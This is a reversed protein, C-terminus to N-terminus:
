FAATLAIVHAQYTDYDGVFDGFANGTQIPSRGFDILTYHLGLRVKENWDHIFGASFRWQRDSAMDPLNHRRDRVPSTDHAVGFQLLWAPAARWEVGLGVHWTDHWARAIELTAGAPGSIPTFDNESWDEWGVDAMLAVTDNLQHYVSARVMQPIPIEVSVDGDELGLAVFLPPLDNFDIDGDLEFELKSRYTVGFRTSESHQYLLGVNVNWDFDDIGDMEVEGEPGPTLRGAVGLLSDVAERQRQNGLNPFRDLVTQLQELRTTAADLRDQDVFNGLRPLALDFDMRGYAVTVGGGISWKDNIRYSVVPTAGLIALDLDTVWTRGAWDDDPSLAGGALGVFSGGVAWKDNLPEVYFGGAGPAFGGQDGGDGGDLTTQDDLDFEIETFIPQLGVMFAREEFRGMGAPNFFATAADYAYAAQGAQSVGNRSTALEQLLLGGAQAGGATCLVIWTVVLSTRVSM